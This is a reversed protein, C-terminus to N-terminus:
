RQIIEIPSVISVASGRYKNKDSDAVAVMNGTDMVVKMVYDKYDNSVVNSYVVLFGDKEKSNDNLLKKLFEKMPHSIESQQEPALGFIETRNEYNASTLLVITFITSILLLHMKPMENACRVFIFHTHTNSIWSKIFYKRPNIVYYIIKIYIM